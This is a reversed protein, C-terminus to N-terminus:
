TNAHAGIMIFLADAAREEVSSEQDPVKTETVLRELGNEGILGIVETYPEVTINGKSALHKILYQSM